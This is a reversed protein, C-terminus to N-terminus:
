GRHNTTTGLAALYDQQPGGDKASNISGFEMRNSLIILFKTKKPKRM